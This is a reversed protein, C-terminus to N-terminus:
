YAETRITPRLGFKHFERQMIARVEDAKDPTTLISNHITGVFTGPWEELIRRCIIDIMIKSECAQLLYALQRYDKRKLDNIVQYVSPFDGAFLDRLRGTQKNRGFFV